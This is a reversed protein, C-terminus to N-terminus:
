RLSHLSILKSLLRNLLDFVEALTHHEHETNPETYINRKNRSVIIDTVYRGCRCDDDLLFQLSRWLSQTTSGSFITLSRFFLPRTVESFRRSVLRLPALPSPLVYRAIMLLIEVPLIYDMTALYTRHSM